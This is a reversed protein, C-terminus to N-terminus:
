ELSHEYATVRRFTGLVSVPRNLFSMSSRACRVSWRSEPRGGLKSQVVGWGCIEVNRQQLQRILRVSKQRPLECENKAADPVWILHTFSPLESGGSRNPLLGLPGHEM